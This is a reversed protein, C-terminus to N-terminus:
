GKLKNAAIVLRERIDLLFDMLNKTSDELKAVLSVQNLYSNVQKQQQDNDVLKFWTFESYRESIEREIGILRRLNALISGRLGQSIADSLKPRQLDSLLIEAITQGRESDVRRLIFLITAPIVELQNISRNLDQLERDHLSPLVWDCLKSWIKLEEPSLIELLNYQPLPKIEGTEDDPAKLGLLGLFVEERRNKLVNTRLYTYKQQYVTATSQKKKGRGGMIFFAGELDDPVQEEKEAAIKNQNLIAEIQALLSVERRNLGKNRTINELKVLEVLLNTNSLILEPFIAKQLLFHLLKAM